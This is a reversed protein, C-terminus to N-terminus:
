VYWKSGLGIEPCLINFAITIMQTMGKIHHITSNVLFNQFLSCIKSFSDPIVEHEVNMWVAREGDSVDGDYKVTFCQWQLVGGLPTSDIM